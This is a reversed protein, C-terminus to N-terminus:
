CDFPIGVCAIHNMGDLATFFSPKLKEIDRLTYKERGNKALIRTMKRKLKEDLEPHKSTPLQTWLAITYFPKPSPIVYGNSLTNAKM